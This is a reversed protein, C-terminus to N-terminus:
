VFKASLKKVRYQYDLCDKLCENDIGYFEFLDHTAIVATNITSSLIFLLESDKISSSIVVKNNEFHKSAIATLNGHTHRCLRNYVTSYLEECGAKKFKDAVCLPRKNPKLEELEDNNLANTALYYPNLASHQKLHKYEADNEASFIQEVHLSDLVLCRLEVLSELSSRMIIQISTYSLNQILIFIDACLSNVRAWYSLVFKSRQDYFSLKQANKERFEVFECWIEYFIDVM